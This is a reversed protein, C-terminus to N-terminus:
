FEGLSFFKRGLGQQITLLQMEKKKCLAVCIRLMCDPQPLIAWPYNMLFVKIQKGPDHKLM